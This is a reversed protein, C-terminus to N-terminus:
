AIVIRVPLPAEVAGRGVLLQDLFWDVIHLDQVLEDSADRTIDAQQFLRELGRVRLRQDFAVDLIVGHQTSDYLPWPRVEHPFDQPTRDRERPWVVM